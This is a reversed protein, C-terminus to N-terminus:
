SDFAIDRKMLCVSQRLFSGKSKQVNASKYEIKM